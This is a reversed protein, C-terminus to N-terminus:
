KAKSDASAKHRRSPPLEENNLVAEPAIFNGIPFLPLSLAKVWIQEGTSPNVISRM